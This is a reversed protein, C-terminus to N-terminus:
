AFLRERKGMDVLVVLECAYLMLSFFLFLAIFFVRAVVVGPLFLSIVLAVAATARAAAAEEEEEEEEEEEAALPPPPLPPLLLPPPPKKRWSFANYSKYL